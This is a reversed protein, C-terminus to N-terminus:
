FIPIWLLKIPCPISLKKSFIACTKKWPPTATNTLCPILSPWPFFSERPSSSAKSLFTIKRTIIGASGPMTPLPPMIFFVSTILIVCFLGPTVETKKALTAANPYSGSRILEDIFLLRNTRVKEEFNTRSM